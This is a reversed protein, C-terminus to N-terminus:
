TGDDVMFKARVITAEMESGNNVSKIKLGVPVGEAGRILAGAEEISKGVVSVFPSTPLTKVAMIEDGARLQGSREAPADKVLSEIMLHGDKVDVNVGIGIVEVMKASAPASAFGVLALSLAAVKLMRKM